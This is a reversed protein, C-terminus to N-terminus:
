VQAYHIKIMNVEETGDGSGSVRVEEWNDRKQKSDKQKNTETFQHTKSPNSVPSRDTEKAAVGSFLIDRKWFGNATHLYIRPSSHPRM